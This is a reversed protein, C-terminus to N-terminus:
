VEYYGQPVFKGLHYAGFHYVGSHRQWEWAKCIDYLSESQPDTFRLVSAYGWKGSIKYALFTHGLDAAIWFVVAKNEIGFANCVQQMIETQESCDYVGQSFVVDLPRSSNSQKYQLFNRITAHAIWPVEEKSIKQEALLQNLKNIIVAVNLKPKTGFWAVLKERQQGMKLQTEYLSFKAFINRCDNQNVREHDFLARWNQPTLCGDGTTNGGLRDAVHDLAALHNYFDPDWNKLEAFFCLAQTTM